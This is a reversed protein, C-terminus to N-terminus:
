IEHCIDFVTFKDRRKIYYYVLKRSINLDITLPIQKFTYQYFKCFLTFTKKNVKSYGYM